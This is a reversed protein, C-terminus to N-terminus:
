WGGGCGCVPHHARSRPGRLWHADGGGAPPQRPLIQDYGMLVRLWSQLGGGGGGGLVRGRVPAGWHHGSLVHRPRAGRRGGAARGGNGHNILPPDMKGDRNGGRRCLFFYRHFRFLSAPPRLFGESRLFRRVRPPLRHRPLRRPIPPLRSPPPVRVPVREERAGWLGAGGAGSRALCRPPM